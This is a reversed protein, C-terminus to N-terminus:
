VKKATSISNPITLKAAPASEDGAQNRGAASRQVGEIRPHRLLLWFIVVNLLTTGHNPPSNSFFRKASEIALRITGHIIVYQM